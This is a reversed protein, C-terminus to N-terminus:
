NAWRKRFRVAPPERVEEYTAVSEVGLRKRVDQLPMELMEEWPQSPLWEARRGKGFGKVVMGRHSKDTAFVMGLGALFGIGPHKTQAFTFALLSAEGLLDGRYGTVTHWLDHSDRMREHVYVMDPDDHTYYDVVGDESAQVLGAATINEYNLFELYARGLSGEPMAQLRETDQLIELLAPKDRLLQQGTETAKFRRLLREPHNFSLAQAIRFVQSTDEPNKLSNRTADAVTRFREILPMANSM